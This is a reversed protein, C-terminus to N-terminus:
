LWLSFASILMGVLVYSQVHQAYASGDRDSQYRAQWLVQAVLGLLVVAGGIPTDNAILVLAVIVQALNGLFVWQYNRTTALGLLARYVLAFLFAFAALLWTLSALASAAILWSLAIETFARLWGSRRTPVRTQAELFSLLMAAIALAVAFPGLIAAIALVLIGVAAIGIMEASIRPRLAEKLNALYLGLRLSVRMPLPEPNLYFTDLALHPARPHRRWDVESWSARWASLLTDCLLLSLVLTLGTSGRLALGGSAIAGCLAAWGPGLLTLPRTARLDMAVWRGFLPRSRLLDEM